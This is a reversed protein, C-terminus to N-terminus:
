KGSRYRFEAIAGALLAHNADAVVGALRALDRSEDCIEVREVIGPLTFMRRSGTVGAAVWLTRDPRHLRLVLDSGDVRVFEPGLFDGNSPDVDVIQWALGRSVAGTAMFGDAVPWPARPSTKAATM